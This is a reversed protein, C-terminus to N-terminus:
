PKPAAYVRGMLKARMGLLGLCISPKAMVSSALKNKYAYGKYAYVPQFKSFKLCIILMNGPQSM